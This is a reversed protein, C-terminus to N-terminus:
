LTKQGIFTAVRHGEKGHIIPKRALVDNDALTRSIDPLTRPSRPRYSDEATCTMIMIGGIALARSAKEVVIQWETSYHLLRDLLVIDFSCDPYLLTEARQVRFDVEAEAKAALKRARSIALPSLDVGSVQAILGTSQVFVATEGCGCGIDLMSHTPKRQAIEDILGIIPVKHPAVMKCWLAMVSESQRILQWDSCDHNVPELKQKISAYMQRAIEQALGIEMNSFPVEYLHEALFKGWRCEICVCGLEHDPETDFELLIM